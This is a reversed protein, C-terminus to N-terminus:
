QPVSSYMMFLIQDKIIILFDCMCLCACVNIICMLKYIMHYVCQDLIYQVYQIYIYLLIHVVNMIHVIYFSTKQSYLSPTHSYLNFKLICYCM